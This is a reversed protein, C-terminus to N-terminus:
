TLYFELCSTSIKVMLLLTLRCNMELKLAAMKSNQNGMYKRYIRWKTFQLGAMKMFLLFRVAGDKM